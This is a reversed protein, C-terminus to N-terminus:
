KGFDLIQCDYENSDITDDYNLNVFVGLYATPWTTLTAGDEVVSSFFISDQQNSIALNATEGRSSPSTSPNSAGSSSSTLLLYSKKLACGADSNQKDAQM